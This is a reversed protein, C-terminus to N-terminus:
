PKSNFLNLKQWWIFKLDSLAFEILLFFLALALCYQFKDDYDTFVKSGYNSKEMKNIQELIHAIGDDSNNARVFSGNGAQAIELLMDQNLKTIVTSGEKDKLFEKMAGNRVIPIPGGQESGMGLTHVVVGQEAAEKAADLANDEHNEGDTIVILTKFKKQKTDFSKCALEIASGIATGQTGIMDPEITSIFLKAAAYDSTIPLQVFSTGAFIVLGIKDNNLKEILRSIAQKARELRTPAIDACNMSNSVDLAVMIEVGERKVEEQKTGFQPNALALIMAVLAFVLLIFKVIPKNYSYQPILQKVLHYDGLKQLSKKRWRILWVFLLLLLPILYFGNFFYTDAFRFMFDQISQSILM